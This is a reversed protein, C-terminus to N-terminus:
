HLEIFKCLYALIHRTNSRHTELNKEDEHTNNIADFFTREKIPNTANLFAAHSTRGMVYASAINSVCNPIVQRMTKLGTM